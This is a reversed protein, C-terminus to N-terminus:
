PTLTMNYMISLKQDTVNHGAFLDTVNGQCIPLFVLKM